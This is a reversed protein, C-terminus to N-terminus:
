APRSRSPPPTTSAAKASDGSQTANNAMVLAQRANANAKGLEDMKRTLRM